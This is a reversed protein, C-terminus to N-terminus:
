RCRRLTEGCRTGTGGGVLNEDLVFRDRKATVRVLVHKRVGDPRRVHRMQRRHEKAGLQPIDVVRVGGRVPDLPVHVKGVLRDQAPGARKALVNGGKPLDGPFGAFFFDGHFAHKHLEAVQQGPTFLIVLVAHPQAM